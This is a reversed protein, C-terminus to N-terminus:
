RLAGGGSLTTLTSRDSRPAGSFRGIDGKLGVGKRMDADLMTHEGDFSRLSRMHIRM